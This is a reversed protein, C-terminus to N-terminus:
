IEWGGKRVGASDNGYLEPMFWDFL